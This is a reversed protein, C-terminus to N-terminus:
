QSFGENTITYMTFCETFSTTFKLISHITGIYENSLTLITNYLIVINIHMGEVTTQETTQRGSLKNQCVGLTTRPM